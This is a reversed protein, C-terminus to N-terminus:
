ARTLVAGALAGLDLALSWPSGMAPEPRAAGRVLRTVGDGGYDRADSAFAVRYAGEGPVGVVYGRYDNPSFNLVVVAFAEGASRLYSLVCHRADDPDLWRFASEGFDEDHLAPLASYLSGLAQLAAAVQRHEPEELEEWPISRAPDWARAQAFEDGMFTLKKGPYTLQFTALLRMQAIRQTRDGYLQSCLSGRLPASEDHSLALVSHEARAYLREFTLDTHHASREGWPLGLYRITDHVWGMNWRMSFGLGGSAPPESVAPWSTSEEAITLADPVLEAVISNLERLFRVAALNERGGLPNPKWRGARADDLYLMSSVADVRLGDAHFETLWYLANCLLFNRVEPRGYNFILTRWQPHEAMEPDDREYLPAGDFEGLAFDDKPFHLPVWDLIVGLEARHCRDVFARFEDPTGFRSTPAFYGTVQYGLSENLPHEFVPLLELHTYRMTKAYAILEDALREYSLFAGDAARRWSGLHVEYIHVPQKRWSWARRRDMWAEDHWPFSSPAVVCANQNAPAVFARAYPDTKVVLRGNERHKIEFKYQAGAALGPIFLGWLGRRDLRAMPHRRGDWENFDGVVSASAAAPAWTVFRVGGEGRANAMHAGLSRYADFLRGAHFRQMADRSMM